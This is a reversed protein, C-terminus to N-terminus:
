HEGVATTDNIIFLIKKFQLYRSEYIQGRSQAHDVGGRGRRDCSMLRRGACVGGESYSYSRADGAIRLVDSVLDILVCDGLSLYLEISPRGHAVLQFSIFFCPLDTPTTHPRVRITDNDSLCRDRRTTPSHPTYLVLVANRTIKLTAIKVQM